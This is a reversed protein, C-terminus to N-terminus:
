GQMLIGSTLTYVEHMQSAVYADHTSVIIGMDYRKCSMLLLDVIGKGTEVDLNGTPEDALLFTPKNFLARALAIRQQQGGSLTAPKHGAKDSLGVQGLLEQARSVCAKHSNGAIIGPMMINEAVTLERILYPAQFMLGISKNLFWERETPTFSDINKSNYLVSGSSPNDLGALIHMLTSKGTGSVGTIAYCMGQTFTASIDHLVSIHVGSHDFFKGVHEMSLNARQM